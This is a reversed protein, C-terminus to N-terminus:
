KKEKTSGNGSLEELTIMKKRRKSIFISASFYLYSQTIYPLTPFLTQWAEFVEADPDLVYCM